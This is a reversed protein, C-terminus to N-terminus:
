FQLNRVGEDEKDLLPDIKYITKSAVGCQSLHFYYVWLIHPYFYCHIEFLPGDM